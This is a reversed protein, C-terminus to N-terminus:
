KYYKMFGGEHFGIHDSVINLEVSSKKKGTLKFSSKSCKLGM